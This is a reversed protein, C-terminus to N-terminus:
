PTEVLVDVIEANSNDFGIAVSKVKLPSYSVGRYRAAVLDGLVYHVGYYANPVQLVQFSFKSRATSRDLEQDGAANLEATTTLNRADVYTEFDRTAGQNSGNRTAVTRISGDGQGAVIAVTSESIRDDIFQPTKMNGRELSFIISATKDSGLNPTYTRFEFTTAATKVLDFDLGGITEIEQISSLVNRYADSVTISNGTNGDAQVTITYLGSLKGTGDVAARIRGDSVSGSSTANYTVIRKIVREANTASFTSRQSTGAKYAVIRTGLLWMIGPATVRLTSVDNTEWQLARIIGVFERTWSLGIDSNQRWVEVQSNMVISSVSASKEGLNFVLLGPENIVKSIQLSLFDTITAVTAGTTDIIRLYYQAGM